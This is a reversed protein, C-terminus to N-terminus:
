SVRTKVMNCLSCRRQQTIVQRALVFGAAHVSLPQVEDGVKVDQWKSWQHIHM